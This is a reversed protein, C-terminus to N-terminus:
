RPGSNRLPEIPEDLPLDSAMLHDFSRWQTIYHRAKARDNDDRSRLTRREKLRHSYEKWAHIGGPRPAGRWLGM